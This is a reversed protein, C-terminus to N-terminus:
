QESDGADEAGSGQQAPCLDVSANPATGPRFGRSSERPILRLTAVRRPGGRTGLVARSQRVRFSGLFESEPRAQNQPSQALASRAVLQQFGVWSQRSLVNLGGHPVRSVRECVFFDQEDTPIRNAAAFASEHAEEGVFATVERDDGSKTGCTVVHIRHDLDARAGLVGDNEVESPRLRADQERFVLIKAQERVGTAHRL